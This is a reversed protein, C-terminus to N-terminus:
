SLATTNVMKGKLLELFYIENNLSYIKKMSSNLKGINLPVKEKGNSTLDDLNVRKM